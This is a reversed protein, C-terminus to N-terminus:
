PKTEMPPMPILGIEIKEPDLHSYEWGPNLPQKRFSMMEEVTVLQYGAAILDPIVKDLAKATSVWIDHCLIIAGNTAKSRIVSITKSTSRTQWDLSDVSWLIIPLNLEALPRRSLRNTAGYPPRMMTVKQGTVELIKDMTRTMESRVASESLLTFNSHSWSHSGIQHGAEAMRKLIEENGAINRGLVFFTGRAGYKELSDLVKLTEPQPGDDFTLALLPKGPDIGRDLAKQRTLDPTPLPTPVAAELPPLGNKFTLFAKMMHGEKGDPTKVQCFEEGNNRIEVQTGSPYRGLSPSLIDARERLHLAGGKVLAIYPEAFAHPVLFALFACFLFIFPKRM